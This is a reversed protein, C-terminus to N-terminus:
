LSNFKAQLIFHIVTFSTKFATNKEWHDIHYRNVSRQVTTLTFSNCRSLHGPQWSSVPQWSSIPQWSSVPQWSSISRELQIGSINHPPFAVVSIITSTISPPPPGPSPLSPHSSYFTTLPLLLLFFFLFFLSILWHFVFWRRPPRSPKCFRSHSVSLSPFHLFFFFFWPWLLDSLSVFRNM